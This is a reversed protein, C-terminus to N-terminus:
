GDVVLALGHGGGGRVVCGGWDEFFDGNETAADACKGGGELQAALRAPLALVVDRHVLHAPPKAALAGGSAPGIVADFLVANVAKQAAVVVGQGQHRGAVALQVAWSTLRQGGKFFGEFRAAEHQHPFKHIAAELAPGEGCRGVLQKGVVRGAQLGDALPEIADHLKDVLAKLRVVGLAQRRVVQFNGGAAKQDLLQAAGNLGGLRQVAPQQM